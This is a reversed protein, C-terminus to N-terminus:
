AKSSHRVDSGNIKSPIVGYCKGWISGPGLTIKVLVAPGLREHWKKRQPEKVKTVLQSPHLLVLAGFPYQKYINSM